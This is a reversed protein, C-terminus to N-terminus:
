RPMDKGDYIFDDGNAGGVGSALIVDEGIMVSDFMPQEYVKKM